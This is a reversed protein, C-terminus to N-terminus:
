TDKSLRKMHGRGGQLFNLHTQKCSVAFAPTSRTVAVLAKFAGGALAFGGILGAAGDVVTHAVVSADALTVATVTPPPVLTWVAEFAGAASVGALGFQSSRKWGPKM